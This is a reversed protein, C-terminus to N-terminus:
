TTKWYVENENKKFPFITMLYYTNQGIHIM